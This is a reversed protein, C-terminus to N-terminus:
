RTKHFTHYTVALKGGMKQAALNVAINPLVTKVELMKAGKNKLWVCGAHQLASFVGKRMREPAVAGLTGMALGIKVEVGNRKPMRFTYFGALEGNDFVLNVDCDKNIVASRAWGAYMKGVLAPDLTPDSLFRCVSSDRSRFCKEAIEAMSEADADTAERVHQSTELKTWNELDFHYGVITDALKFGCRQLVLQTFTDRAGVPASYHEIDEASFLFDEVFRAASSVEANCFSTNNFILPELRALKLNLARSEGDIRRLGALWNGHVAINIGDGEPLGKALNFSGHQAIYATACEEPNAFHQRHPLETWGAVISNVTKVLDASPNTFAM